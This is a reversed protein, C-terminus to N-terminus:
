QQFCYLRAKSTCLIGAGGATWVADTYQFGGLMGFGGLETWAECDTRPNTTPTGGPEWRMATADFSTFSWVADYYDPSPEAVDGREDLDIAHDLDAHVLDAWDDAIPTGDVLVYPADAHSFRDVVGHGVSSLWAKYVGPLRAAVALQQCTADAGDLGHLYGGQVLASTVFVLKGDRPPDRHHGSPDRFVGTCAALGLALVLALKM